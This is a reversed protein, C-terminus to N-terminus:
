VLDFFYDVGCGQDIGLNYGLGGSIEHILDELFVLVFYLLDVWLKMWIIVVVLINLGVVM